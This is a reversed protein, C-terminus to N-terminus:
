IFVTDTNNEMNIIRESHIGNAAEPRGEPVAFTIEAPNFLWADCAPFGANNPVVICCFASSDLILFKVGLVQKQHHNWCGM